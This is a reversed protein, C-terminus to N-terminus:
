LQYARKRFRLRIMEAVTNVVFTMLFLLLAALFLTRYHTSGAVAEPLEVAINASLTRFGEFPNWNMVPTNGAAMLVIMTEGVARGLGVMVASFLGSAATPVIIRVATQWRTAGAGLSASRLHAPVASLADEALTYIIPIIAFGMVFGVVLANRQVYTDLYSGRPDLGLRDLLSAVGVALVLTGALALLFKSADAAALLSRSWGGARARLRANLFRNVLFWLLAASAPFTLFLWGGLTSALQPRGSSLTADWALWGKFDGAFFIGEALPGLGIALWIGFPIVLMLFVLRWPELRIALRPPLLQWGYAGLLFALPLAVFAALVTPVAREVLPAFVLAALFGLVVSPLSAMLEITPKVVTRIRPALLESTFLAALLALPAGFLMSYATAKLTGFILPLLSHKPEFDDSGSSSQWSHIPAPYGEYWTPRFFANFSAESSGTVLRGVMLHHRTAVALRDERPGLALTEVREEIPLKIDALQSEYTVNYLRLSHDEFAALLLRSRASAAIARIAGGAQGERALRKTRVLVSVADPAPELARATLDQLDTRRIQFGAALAGSDDGWALTNQGLVFGVANLRRGPAVLRGREAIQANEPDGLAVRLASGDEWTLYLDAGAASLGLWRPPGTGLPEYPLEVPAGFSMSTEGTLFNSSEEGTVAVLRMRAGPSAAGRSAEGRGPAPERVLAALRLGDATPQRAIALLPGDGFVVRQEFRIEFRERRVQHNQIRQLVGDEFDVVAGESVGELLARQPAHLADLPLVETEFRFTALQAAGDALGFVAGDGTLAFQWSCLEGPAFVTQSARRRGDDLRFVEVRGSPFFAWGLLGYEDLGLHAPAQEFVPGVTQLHEVEAPLFLPVVVWLLFVAVSLVSLITAIGGFTILARAARDKIRVARRTTRKRRRGTFSRSENM